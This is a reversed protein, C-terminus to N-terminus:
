PLLIAIRRADLPRRLLRPINAAPDPQALLGSVRAADLPRRLLRATNQCDGKATLAAWQRQYDPEATGRAARAERLLGLVDVPALDLM